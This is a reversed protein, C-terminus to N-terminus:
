PRGGSQMCEMALPLHHEGGVGCYELSSGLSGSLVVPDHLRVLPIRAERLESKPVVLEVGAAMPEVLVQLAGIVEADSPYAVLIWRM